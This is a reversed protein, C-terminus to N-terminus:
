NEANRDLRQSIAISTDTSPVTYSPVYITEYIEDGPQFCHIRYYVETGSPAAWAFTRNDTSGATANEIGAVVSGDSVKYIRVESNDKMGTFTVTTDANVTVTAGASRVHYDQSVGSGGSITITMSGTAINVYIAKNAATGPDATDYGTFVCDSLTFSAATGGIEIAHGTGDSTFTCGSILAAEAPTACLVASSATSTNVKCDILDAAGTTIQGCTNFSCGTVTSNSDFLFTGMGNFSCGTM